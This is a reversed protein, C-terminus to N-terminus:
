GPARTEAVASEVAPELEGMPIDEGKIFIYTVGERDDIMKMTDGEIQLEMKFKEHFWIQDDEWFMERAKGDTYGCAAKGDKAITIYEVIEDEYGDPDEFEMSDYYYTGYVSQKKERKEERDDEEESGCAAFLCVAVSFCLLLALLRKM